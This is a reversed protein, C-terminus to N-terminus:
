KEEDGESEIERENERVVKELGVVEKKSCSKSEKKEDKREM